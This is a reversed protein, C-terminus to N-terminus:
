QRRLPALYTATLKHEASKLYYNYYFFVYHIVKSRYKILVVIIMDPQVNIKNKPTNIPEVYRWHAMIITEYINTIM